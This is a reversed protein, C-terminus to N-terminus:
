LSCLESVEDACEGAVPGFRGEDPVFRPVSASVDQVDRFKSSDSYLLKSNDFVSVRPQVIPTALATQVVAVLVVLILKSNLM